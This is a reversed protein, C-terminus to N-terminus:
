KVKNINDRIEKTKGLCITKKNDKKTNVSTKLRTTLEKVKIKAEELEKELDVDNFTFSASSSNYLEVDEAIGTIGKELCYQKLLELKREYYVNRRYNHFTNKLVDAKTPSKRLLDNVEIQALMFIEDLSETM